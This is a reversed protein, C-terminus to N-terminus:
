STEESLLRRLKEYARHAKQKVSGVTSSTARAVEELSMGTVKLMVVVERQSDPLANLLAQLRGNAEPATDRRPRLRPEPVEGYLVERSNRRKHRRFGDLKTHRAIAFLWPLVPETARYTHRARHVRVWCEQLLDDNDGALSGPSALFRHLMPSVLRVLSEVAQSDAQQYGIMLRRLHEEDINSVAVRREPTSRADPERRPASVPMM